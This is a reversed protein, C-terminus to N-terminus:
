FHITLTLRQLTPDVSPPPVSGGAEGAGATASAPAGSALSHQEQLTYNVGMSRRHVRPM